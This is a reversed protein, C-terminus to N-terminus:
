EEELHVQFLGRFSTWDTQVCLGDAVLKGYENTTFFLKYAVSVTHNAVDTYTSGYLAVGKEPEISFKKNSSRATIEQSSLQWKIRDGPVPHLKGGDFIIKFITEGKETEGGFSMGTSDGVHPLNKFFAKHANIRKMATKNNVLFRPNSGGGFCAEAIHKTFLADDTWYYYRCIRTGRMKFIFREEEINQLRKLFRIAESSPKDEVVPWGDSRITRDLLIDSDIFKKSPIDGPAVYMGTGSKVKPKPTPIPTVPTKVITPTPTLTKTPTVTPSPSITPTPANGITAKSLIYIGDPKAYLNYEAKLWTTTIRIHTSDIAEFGMNKLLNQAKRESEILAYSNSEHKRKDDSSEVLLEYKFMEANGDRSIRLTAKGDERDWKGDIFIAKEVGEAFHKTNIEDACLAGSSNIFFALILVIWITIKKKM